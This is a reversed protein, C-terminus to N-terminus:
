SLLYCKDRVRFIGYVDANKSFRVCYV